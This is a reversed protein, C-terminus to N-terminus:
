KIMELVRILQNNYSRRGVRWYYFSSVTEVYGKNPGTLWLIRYVRM